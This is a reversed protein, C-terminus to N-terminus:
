VCNSTNVATMFLKWVAMSAVVVANLEAPEAMCSFSFYISLTSALSFLSFASNSSKEFRTNDLSSTVPNKSAPVAMSSKALLSTPPAIVLTVPNVAPIVPRIPIAPVNIPLIESIRAANDAAPAPFVMTEM